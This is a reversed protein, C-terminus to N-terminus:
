VAILCCCYCQCLPVSSHARLQGSSRINSKRFTRSLGMKKSPLRSNPRKKTARHPFRSIDSPWTKMNRQQNECLLTVIEWLSENTTQAFRKNIVTFTSLRGLHIASRIPWSLDLKPAVPRRSPSRTEHTRLSGSFRVRLLIRSKVDKISNLM